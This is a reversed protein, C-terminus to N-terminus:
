QVNINTAESQISLEFKMETEKEFVFRASPVVKVLYAAHIYTLVCGGSCALRACITRSEQLLNDPTKGGKVGPSSSQFHKLRHIAQPMVPPATSLSKQGGGVQGMESRSCM